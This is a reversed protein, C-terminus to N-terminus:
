YAASASCLVDLVVGCIATQGVQCVETGPAAFTRNGGKVGFYARHPM